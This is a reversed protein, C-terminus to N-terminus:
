GGKLFGQQIEIKHIVCINCMYTFTDEYYITYILISLMAVGEQITYLYSAM